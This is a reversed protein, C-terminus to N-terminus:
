GLKSNPPPNDTELARFTFKISKVRKEHFKKIGAIVINRLDSIHNLFNTKLTEM